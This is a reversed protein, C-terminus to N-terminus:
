LKVLRKVGSGIVNFTYIGSNLDRIDLIETPSKLIGTKVITGNSSFIQYTLPFIITPNALFQVEGSSPNPFVSFTEEAILKEFNLIGQDGNYLYIEVMSSYQGDLGSKTITKELNKYSNYIYKKSWHYDTNIDDMQEGYSSDPLGFENYLFHTKYHSRNEIDRNFEISKIRNDEYVYEILAIDNRNNSYHSILKGSFPDYKYVNQAVIQHTQIDLLITSDLIDQENHFFKGYSVTDYGLFESKEIWVSDRLGEKYQYHNVFYGGFCNLYRYRLLFDGEYEYIKFPQGDWFISLIRGREDYRYKENALNSSNYFIDLDTKPYDVEMHRDFNPVANETYRPYSFHLIESHYIQGNQDFNQVIKTTLVQQGNAIVGAVIILSFIIIRQKM